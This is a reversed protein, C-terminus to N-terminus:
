PQKEPLYLVVQPATNIKEGDSTIDARSLKPYAFEAIKCIVDFRQVPSEIEALWQIFNEQNMEILNNVAEKFTQTTKNPVGKPRRPRGDGKKFTTDTKAM